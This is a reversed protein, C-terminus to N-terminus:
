KFIILINNKGNNTFVSLTIVISVIEINHVTVHDWLIVVFDDYKYYIILLITEVIHQKSIQLLISVYLFTNVEAFYPPVDRPDKFTSESPDVIYFLRGLGKIFNFIGCVDLISLSYISSDEENINLFISTVTDSHNHTFYVQGKDM